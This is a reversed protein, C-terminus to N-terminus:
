LCPPQHIQYVIAQVNRRMLEQHQLVNSNDNEKELNTEQNPLWRYEHAPRNLALINYYSLGNGVRKDYM